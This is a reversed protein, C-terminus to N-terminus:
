NVGTSFNGISFSYHLNQGESVNVKASSSILKNQSAVAANPLTVCHVSVDSSIRGIVVIEVRRFISLFLLERPGMSAPRPM